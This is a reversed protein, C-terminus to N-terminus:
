SAPVFDIQYTGSWNELNARAGFDILLVRAVIKEELESDKLASSAISCATVKGTKDISLRLVVRGELLPNQRLARRYISYIASKNADFALKIEEPSRKSSKAEKEVQAITSAGVGAPVKVQTGSRGALTGGGAYAIAKGAVGGSGAGAVGSILDRQVPGSGPVNGSGTGGGTGGGSGVSVQDQRFADGGFNRLAAFQDKMAALGTQSARQRASAVQEASPKETGLLPKTESKTVVRTDPTAAEPKLENLKADTSKVAEQVKPIVLKPKEKQEEFLKTLRQPIKEEKAREVPPPKIFLLILSLLAFFLMNGALTKRYFSETDGGAGWALSTTAVYRKPGSSKAVVPQEQQIKAALAREAEKRKAEAERKALAERAEALRHSEDLALKIRQIRESHQADAVARYRRAQDGLPEALKKRLEAVQRQADTFLALRRKDQLTSQSSEAAARIAALCEALIEDIAQPASARFMALLKADVRLEDSLWRFGLCTQCRWALEEASGVGRSSAYLWLAFLQLATKSNGVVSGIRAAHAPDALLAKIFRASHGASLFASLDAPTGGPRGQVPSPNLESAM